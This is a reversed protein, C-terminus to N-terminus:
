LAPASDRRDFVLAVIERLAGCSAELAEASPLWNEWFVRTSRLARFDTPFAAVDLKANVAIRLARPMHYASTVLAVRGDKVIDHVYRINEITNLARDEIVIAKDPVGLDLLFGRMAEAATTEPAGHQALYSGGSVIIRPAISSHFLRAGLWMRDAAEDLTPDLRDPPMAPKIGGGLVVIADFCCRPSALAAVRAQDELHGMLEDAVPPFSMLLTEGISLVMVLRGLRRRRLLMLGLGVMLGVALSAPPMALQFLIKLLAFTDM